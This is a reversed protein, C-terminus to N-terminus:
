RILHAIRVEGVPTVTAHQVVDINLESDGINNYFSFVSQFHASYTSFRLSDEIAEALTFYCANGFSQSVRFDAWIICSSHSLSLLDIRQWEAEDEEFM